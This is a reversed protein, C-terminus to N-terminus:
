LATVARVAADLEAPANVIGSRVPRLAGCVADRQGRYPAYGPTARGRQPRYWGGRLLSAPLSVAGAPTRLRVGPVDELHTKLRAALSRIRSQVRSRGMAQHFRFAEALAWRHEFSHFGGPSLRAGDPRGTPAAGALWAGYSAPDDFSPITPRLLERVRVNAWLVGTGRPGYLWKHCGSVFADCGLERVTAAEAGFGHVRRRLPAGARSASGRDPARAASV